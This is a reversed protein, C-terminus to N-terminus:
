VMVAVTLESVPPVAIGVRVIASVTGVVIYPVNAESLAVVPTVAETTPAPPPSLQVTVPLLTLQVNFFTLM